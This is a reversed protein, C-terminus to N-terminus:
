RYKNIIELMQNKTAKPSLQKLEHAMNLSNEVELSDLSSDNYVTCVENLYKIKPSEDIIRKISHTGSVAISTFRKM